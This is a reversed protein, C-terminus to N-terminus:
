PRNAETTKSVQTLAQALLSEVLAATEPTEGGSVDFGQFLWLLPIGAPALCATLQVEAIKRQNNAIWMVVGGIVADHTARLLGLPKPEGFSLGHDGRNFLEIEQDFQERSKMSPFGEFCQRLHDQTRVRTAGDFDRDLIAIVISRRVVATGAKLLTALDACEGAALLVHMGQMAKATQALVSAPYACLGSPVVVHLPGGPVELTVSEPLPAVDEAFAVVSCSCAFVLALVVARM